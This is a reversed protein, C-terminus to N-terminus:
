YDDTWWDDSSFSLIDKTDIVVTEYKPAVYAKKM